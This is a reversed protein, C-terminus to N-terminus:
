REDNNVLSKLKEIFDKYLAIKIEGKKFIKYAIRDNTLIDIARLIDGSYYKDFYAEMDYDNKFLLYLAGTEVYHKFLKRVVDEVVVEYKRQKLFHEFAERLREKEFIREENTKTKSKRESIRKSEKAKEKAKHINIIKNIIDEKEKVITWYLGIKEVLGYKRLNYLYSRLYSGRVELELSLEIATKPGEKLAKLIKVSLGRVKTLTTTTTISNSM